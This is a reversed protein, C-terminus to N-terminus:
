AKRYKGIIVSRSFELLKFRNVVREYLIGIRFLITSFILYSPWKQFMIIKEKYLNASNCIKEVSKISNARYYTPFTDYVEIGRLRNLYRHFLFPTFKSIITVFNYVNPTIFVFTGKQLLTRSFEKFVKEPKELHEIVNQCLIVDFSNDKFPLEELNGKIRYKFLKNGKLSSEDLDIGIALSCLDNYEIKESGRGCGANLLIGKRYKGEKILEIYQEFAGKYDGKPYYKKAIEYCKKKTEIIKM